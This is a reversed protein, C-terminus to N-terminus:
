QALGGGLKLSDHSTPHQHRAQVWARYDSILHREMRHKITLLVGNLLTRGTSEIVAGPMLKLPYPIEVRVTLHAEGQLRTQQGSRVPTLIGTLDMSFAHDIFDVGQVHSALSKLHLAGYSDTRVQIDATPEVRISLFHLPRLSLRYVSDDLPEIRKPDTIAQVLRQPQKLYHEIPIAENPVIM